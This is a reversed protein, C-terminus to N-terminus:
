ISGDKSLAESNRFTNYTDHDLPYDWSGTRHVIRGGFGTKFRYLGFFPHAPDQTPSVAGMDYTNCGRSRALCIAAWHVAYPGMINRKESSSAGFLYTATRGSITIIAGALLDHGHAALLLHVEPSDLDCPLSSFLTLFYRYECLYFGNRTATKRYLDYFAPLMEVSAPFVRVGRKKALRINYRTKPKMAQLIEEESRSLDVIYTDAFTMNTVTKRLNWSETNFNMRLELLRAEPPASREGRAIDQAYHSEWPLDYRIFAPTPHLHKVMTGSLTELFSGYNEPEPGCEPGQPVYAASFENGFDKTLVLVDGSAVQTSFDFAFAKWGLRSKVQGWYVTQFLIDTPLLGYVDKPRLNLKM